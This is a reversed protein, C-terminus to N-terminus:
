ATSIWPMAIHHSLSQAHTRSLPTSASNYRTRRHRSSLITDTNKYKYKTKTKESM